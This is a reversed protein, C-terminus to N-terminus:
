WQWIKCKLLSLSRINVRREGGRPGCDFNGFPVIVALGHEMYTM